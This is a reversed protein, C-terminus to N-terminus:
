RPAQPIGQASPAALGGPAAWAWTGGTLTAAKPAAPADDRYEWWAVAPDGNPGAGLRFGQIQGEMPPALSCAVANAAGALPVALALATTLLTRTM